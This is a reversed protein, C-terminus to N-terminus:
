AKRKRAAGFGLLGLGLLALTAPEPVNGSRVNSFTYRIDEYGADGLNALDEFGVMAGGFPGTYASDVFAHAFGDANRSAPGTYWNLVGGGHTDSVVNFVLETGAAFYGLNVTAGPGSLHNEFIWNAGIGGANQYPSGPNDLFLYNDYAGSGSVFTAIVDGGTAIVSAGIIPNGQGPYAVLASANSAGVALVAVSLLKALHQRLSRM